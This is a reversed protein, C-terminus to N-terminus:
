AERYPQLEANEVYEPPFLRSVDRVYYRKDEQFLCFFHFQQIRDFCEFQCFFTYLYSINFFFSSSVLSYNTLFFFFFINSFFSTQSIVSWVTIVKWIWVLPCVPKLSRIINHILLNWLTNLWIWNRRLNEWWSRLIHITILLLNLCTGVLDFFFLLLEINHIESSQVIFLSLLSINNNSVSGEM